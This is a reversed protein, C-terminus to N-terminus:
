ILELVEQLVSELAEEYTEKYDEDKIEAEESTDDSWFGVYFVKGDNGEQFPDVHIDIKHKERLWRQLLSQTPISLYFGKDDNLFKDNYGEKLSDIYHYYYAPDRSIFNKVIFDKFNIVEKTQEDFRNDCHIDFGKERALVATEFTVLQDEM